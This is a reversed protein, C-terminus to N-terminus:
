ASVKHPGLVIKEFGGGLCKTCRSPPKKQHYDQGCGTCEWVVTRKNCKNFFKRALSKNKRQKRRTRLSSAIMKRRMNLDRELQLALHGSRDVCRLNGLVDNLTNGDVHVVFCGEPVTGNAQEWLYRAYPIWCYRPPGVDKIKIYRRLNRPWPPMGAKRKRNRLHRSLSDKRFTISGVPKYRRAAAGRIQGPKFRTEASRGGACFYKGKNWPVIGKQFRTNIGSNGLIKRRNKKYEMTTIQKLITNKMTYFGCHYDECLVALPTLDMFRAAVVKADAMVNDANGRYM